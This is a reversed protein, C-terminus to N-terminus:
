SVSGGQPLACNGAKKQGVAVLPPHLSGLLAAAERVMRVSEADVPAPAERTQMEIRDVIERAAHVANTFAKCRSCLPDRQQHALVAALCSCARATTPSTM